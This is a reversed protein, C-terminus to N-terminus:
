REYVQYKVADQILNFGLSKIKQIARAQTAWDTDDLIWIAKRSLKPHWLEVEGCSVEESHNSDQHFLDISGDKFFSVAEQSRCRIWRCEKSVEYKLVEHIFRIYIQELNVNNKWWDDNKPDNSGELAAEVTWPDIGFVIGSQYQKLAMAIPIISRGGFIGLEVSLKPRKSEVLNALVLAKDLECWGEMVPNAASIRDHLEKTIPM